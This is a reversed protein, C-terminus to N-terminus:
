SQRECINQHREKGSILLPLLKFRKRLHNGSSAWSDLPHESALNPPPGELSTSACPGNACQTGKSSMGAIVMPACRNLCHTQSMPKLVPPWLLWSWLWVVHAILMKAYKPMSVYPVLSVMHFWAFDILLFQPSYPCTKVRCDNSCGLVVSCNCSQLVM